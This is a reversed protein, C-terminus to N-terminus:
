EGHIMQYSPVFSIEITIISKARYIRLIELSISSEKYKVLIKEKKKNLNEFPIFEFSRVEHDVCEGRNCSVLPDGLFGARCFCVPRDNGSRDTGPKCDANSGCPNPECLDGSHWVDLGNM